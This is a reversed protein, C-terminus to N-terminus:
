LPTSNVQLVIGSQLYTRFGPLAAELRYPGIPVSSLVYTGTETSLTSRSVGTETQTATVEVGPLVAGSQDRVVGSIQATGQGFAISSLATLSMSLTLLGRFIAKM